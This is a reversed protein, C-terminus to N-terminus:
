VSSETATTWPPKWSSAPNASSRVLGWWEGVEAGWERARLESAKGAARCAWRDRWRAAVIERGCCATFRSCFRFMGSGFGEASGDREDNTTVGHGEARAGWGALAEPKDPRITVSAAVDGGGARGMGRIGGAQGPPNNREESCGRQGRTGGDGFAGPKGPRITASRAVDGGGRAGGGGSEGPGRPRM